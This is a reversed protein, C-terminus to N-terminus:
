KIKPGAVVISYSLRAADTQTQTEASAASQQHSLNVVWTSMVRDLTKEWISLGLIVNLLPYLIAVNVRLSEIILWLNLNLLLGSM